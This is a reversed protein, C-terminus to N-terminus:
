VKELHSVYINKCKGIDKFSKEEYPLQENLQFKVKDGKKFSGWTNYFFLWHSDRKPLKEVGLVEPNILGSLKFCSSKEQWKNPLIRKEELVAEFFGDEDQNLYYSEEILKKIREQFPEINGKIDIAVDEDAVINTDSSLKRLLSHIEKVGTKENLMITLRDRNVAGAIENPSFGPLAIPYHKDTVMWSAGMENLCIASEYYNRSLFYLVIPSEALESKLRDLILEGPEVGSTINSSYFIDKERFGFRKLLRVFEDVYNRDLFSHSIFVKRTMLM